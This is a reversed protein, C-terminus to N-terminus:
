QLMLQVHTQAHAVISVNTLTSLMNEMGQLFLKQQANQNVHEVASALIM